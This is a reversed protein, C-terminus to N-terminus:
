TGECTRSTLKTTLAQKARTLAPTNPLYRLTQRKWALIRRDPRASGTRSGDRKFSTWNSLTKYGTDLAPQRDFQVLTCPLSLRYASQDFDSTDYLRPPLAMFPWAITTLQRVKWSPLYSSPPGPRIDQGPKKLRSLGPSIRFHVHSTIPFLRIWTGSARASPFLHTYDTMTSRFSSACLTPMLFGAIRGPITANAPPGCNDMSSAPQTLSGADKGHGAGAGRPLNPRAIESDRWRLYDPRSLHGFVPYALPQLPGARTSPPKLAAMRKKHGSASTGVEGARSPALWQRPVM